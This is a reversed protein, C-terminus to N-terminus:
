TSHGVALLLDRDPMGNQRRVDARCPHDVSRDRGSGCFMLGVLVVHNPSNQLSLPRHVCWATSWHKWEKMRRGCM